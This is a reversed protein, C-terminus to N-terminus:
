ALTRSAVDHDADHSAQFLFTAAYRVAWRGATWIVLWASYKTDDVSPGNSAVALACAMASPRLLLESVSIAAPVFTRTSLSVGRGPISMPSQTDPLLPCRLFHANGRFLVMSPAPAACIAATSPSTPAHSISRLSAIQGSSGQAGTM